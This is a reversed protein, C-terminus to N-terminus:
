LALTIAKKTLQSKLARQQKRRELRSSQTHSKASKEEAPSAPLIIHREYTLELHHASFNNPKQFITLNCLPCTHPHSTIAFYICSTSLAAYGEYTRVSIASYILPKPFTTIIIETNVLDARHFIYAKCITTAAYERQKFASTRYRSM